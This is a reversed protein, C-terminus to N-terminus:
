EQMRNKLDMRSRLIRAIEIKDEKIKRYFITHQGAKLGLINEEVERYNKGFVKEGALEQCSYLLM